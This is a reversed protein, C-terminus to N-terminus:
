MYWAHRAENGPQQPRFVVQYRSNACAHARVLNEPLRSLVMYEIYSYYPKSGYRTNSSMYIGLSYELLTHWEGKLSESLALHLLEYVTLEM